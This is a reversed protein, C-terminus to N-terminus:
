IKNEIIIYQVLGKKNIIPIMSVLKDFIRLFWIPVRMKKAVETPFYCYIFKEIFEFKIRNDNIWEELIDISLDNIHGKGPSSFTQSDRNNVFGLSKAIDFFPTHGPVSIIVYKNAVRLLELIANKPNLVHELTETCLIIDFERDRFPLYEIDTQIFTMDPSRKKAKDLYNKAIDTGVIKRNAGRDPNGIDEYYKIYLGEACGVDLFSDGSLEKLSTIVKKQLVVHWYSNWKNSCYMADQRNEILAEKEYYEYITKKNPEM